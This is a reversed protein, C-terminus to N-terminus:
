ASTRRFVFENCGLNGAPKVKEPTFGRARCFEVIAETTAVEFPYGGLWDVWDYLISMGRTREYDRYFKLPSRGRRLEGVSDRIVFYPVFAALVAIKGLTSRNYIRKVTTWRQSVAGQDNYISIFFIGGPRVLRAVGDIADWMGGTHHLVGWSYVIDWQGLRELFAPDLASGREVTWQVGPPAYRARVAETCAVSDPDYDFSHIRSAGLRSAALSSLGSGSGVDLFTAGKIKQPDLMEGLSAVAFKIRDENLVDLYRRWNRGFAFRSPSAVSEQQTIPVTTM